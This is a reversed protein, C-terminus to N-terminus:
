DNYLTKRRTAFAWICGSLASVSRLHRAAHRGHCAPCDTVEAPRTAVAACSLSVWRWRMICLDFRM